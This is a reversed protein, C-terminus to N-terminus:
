GEGPDGLVVLHVPKNPWARLVVECVRQDPTFTTTSSGTASRLDDAVRYALTVAPPTELFARATPVSTDAATCAALTFTTAVAVAARVRM